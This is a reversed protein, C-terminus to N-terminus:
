RGAATELLPTGCTDCYSDRAGVVTRCLGCRAPALAGIGARLGAAVARVAISVRRVRPAVTLDIRDRIGLPRDYPDEVPAAVIARVQQAPREPQPISSRAAAAPAAAPTPRVRPPPAAPRSTREQRAHATAARPARAPRADPWRAVAQNALWRERARDYRARAAPDTMVARVTNVVQMEETARPSDNYDPHYHRALRRCAAVITETDARPDVQLLQYIDREPAYTTFREDM